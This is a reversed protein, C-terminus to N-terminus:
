RNNLFPAKGIFEDSGIENIMFWALEGARLNYATPTVLSALPREVFPEAVIRPCRLLTWPVSSAAVLEYEAQKDELTDTLAFAVIKQMLWGTFNRDDGPVNVGGGSVLIYRQINHKPSLEIIHGTAVTSVMLAADGDARVPGLASVVVDSGRLLEDIVNADRADGKVISIQDKLHDLKHPSRALARVKYGQDLAEQLIFGGVMGTGGLVAITLGQQEIPRDIEVATLEVETPTSSCAALLLILTGITLQGILGKRMVV